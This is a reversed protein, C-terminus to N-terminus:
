YMVVSLFKEALEKEEATREPKEAWASVMESVAIIRGAADLCLDGPAFAEGDIIAVPIGYSSAAHETTLTSLTSM